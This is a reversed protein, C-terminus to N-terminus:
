QDHGIEEASKAQKRTIKRIKEDLEPQIQDQPKMAKNTKDVQGKSKVLADTEERLKESILVFRNLKVYAELKEPNVFHDLTVKISSASNSKDLPANELLSFTKSVKAIDPYKRSLKAILDQPSNVQNNKIEPIVVHDVFDPNLYGPHHYNLLTYTLSELESLKTAAISKSAKKYREDQMLYEFRMRNVLRIADRPNVPLANACKNLAKNFEQSDEAEQEYESDEHRSRIWRVYSIYTGLGLLIILATAWQPIVPTMLIETDGVNVTVIKTDGPVTPIEALAARAIDSQVSEGPFKTMPPNVILFVIAGCVIIAAAFSRFWAPVLSRLKGIWSEIKKDKKKGSQQRYNRIADVLGYVKESEVSPVSISLTVMKKLYNAGFYEDVVEGDKAYEKFFEEISKIIYKRDYGLMFFSRQAGVGSTTILNITKMVEVIHDPACRDLDDIIILFKSPGIAERYLEFEKTFEDLFGIRKSQDKINYLKKFQLRFPMFVQKYLLGGGGLGLVSLLLTTWPDVAPKGEANATSFLTNAINADILWVTIIALPVFLWIYQQFSMKKFRVWALRLGFRFKWDETLSSTITKLFAALIQDQKQYHWANFWVKRWRGTDELRTALMKMLSSKGSGWPGNVSITLPPVTERNDLFKALAEVTSEFGLKDQAVEDIPTDRFLITKVEEEVGEEMHKFHTIDFEEEAPLKSPSGTWLVAIVSMISLTASLGIETHFWSDLGMGVSLIYFGVILLFTAMFAKVLYQQPFFKRGASIGFWTYISGLYVVLLMLFPLTTDKATYQYAPNIKVLIEKDADGAVVASLASSLISPGLPLSYASLTRDMLDDGSESLVDAVINAVDLNEIKGPPYIYIERVFQLQPSVQAIGQVMADAAAKIGLSAYLLDNVGFLPLVV